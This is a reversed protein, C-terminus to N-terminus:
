IEDTSNLTLVRDLFRNNVGYYYISITDMNEDLREIVIWSDLNANYGQNLTYTYYISNDDNLDVGAIYSSMDWVETGRDTYNIIELFDSNTNIDDNIEYM